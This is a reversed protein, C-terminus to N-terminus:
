CLFCLETSIQAILVLASYTNSTLLCLYLTNNLALPLASWGTILYFKLKLAKLVVPPAKSAKKTRQAKIQPMAPVFSLHLCDNIYTTLVKPDLPLATQFYYVSSKSSSKTVYSLSIAGECRAQSQIETNQTKQM